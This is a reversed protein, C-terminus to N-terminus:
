DSPTSVSTLGRETHLRSVQTSPVIQELYPVWCSKRKGKILDQDQHPTSQYEFLAEVGVGVGCTMDSM